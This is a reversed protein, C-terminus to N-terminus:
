PKSAIAAENSNNESFDQFRAVGARFYGRPIFVGEDLGSSECFFVGAPPRVDM